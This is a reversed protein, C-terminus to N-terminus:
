LDHSKLLKSFILLSQSAAIVCKVDDTLKDHCRQLLREKEMNLTCGTQKQRFLSSGELLQKFVSKVM